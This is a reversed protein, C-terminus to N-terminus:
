NALNGTQDGCCIILVKSSDDKVPDHNGTLFCKIILNRGLEVLSHGQLLSRLKLVGIVENPFM